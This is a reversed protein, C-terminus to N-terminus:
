GAGQKGKLQELKKLWAEYNPDVRKLYFDYAQSLKKKFFWILRTPDNGVQAEELLGFYRKRERVEIIIPPFGERLLMWNVLLRGVRGNGDVFPHIGEFDSHLIAIRAIAPIGRPKDNVREIFDKMMQKVQSPPPPLHASGRIYVQVKRYSGGWERGWMATKHLNLVDLETIKSEPAKDSWLFVLDVADKHGKVDLYDKFPKNAGVAGESLFLDTEKFTLTSGEITTSHYTWVVALDERYKKEVEPSVRLSDLRAKKFAILKDLATSGEGRSKPKPEVVELGHKKAYATAEEKDGLYARSRQVIRGGIREAEVLYYYYRGNIFKARIYVCCNYHRFNIFSKM